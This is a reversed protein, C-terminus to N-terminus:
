QVSSDVRAALAVGPSSSDLMIDVGDEGLIFDVTHESTKPEKACKGEEVAVVNMQPDRVLATVVATKGPSSCAFTLTYQGRQLTPGSLTLTTEKSTPRALKNVNVLLPHGESFKGDIARAPEVPESPARSFTPVPAPIQDASASGAPPTPACATAVIAVGALVM